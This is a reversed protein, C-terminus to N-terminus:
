VEKESKTSSAMSTYVYSSFAKQLLSDSFNGISLGLSQSLNFEKWLM